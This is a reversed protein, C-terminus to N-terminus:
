RQPLRDALESAASKLLPVVGVLQEVSMRFVPVATALSAFAVGQSNLVPVAVARMGIENEEDMLAYGQRRIKEIELRFADRDTISFETLPELELEEVLEKREEDDAFAVLAKGVGQGRM